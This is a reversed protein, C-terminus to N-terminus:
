RRAPGLCGRHVVSTDSRRRQDTVGDARASGLRPRGQRSPRPAQRIPGPGVQHRGPRARMGREGAPRGPVVAELRHLEQYYPRVQPLDDTRRGLRHVSDRGEARVASDAATRGRGWAAGSRTSTDSMRAFPAMPWGQRPGRSSSGPCCMPRSGSWVMLRRLRGTSVCIGYSQWRRWGLGM